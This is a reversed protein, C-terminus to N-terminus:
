RKFRFGALLLAGVAGVVLGGAATLRPHAALWLEFENTSAPALVIFEKPEKGEALAKGKAANQIAMAQVFLEDKASKSGQATVM